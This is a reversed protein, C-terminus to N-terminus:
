KTPQYGVVMEGRMWRKKDLKGGSLPNLLTQWVDEQLKTVEDGGRDKSSRESKTGSVM